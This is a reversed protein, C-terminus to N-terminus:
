IDLSRKPMEGSLGGWGGKGIAFSYVFTFILFLSMNKFSKRPFYKM